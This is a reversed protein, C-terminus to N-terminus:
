AQLIVEGRFDAAIALFTESAEAVYEQAESEIPKHINYLCSLIKWLLDRDGRRKAKELHRFLELSM